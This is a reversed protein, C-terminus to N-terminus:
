WSATLYAEARADTEQVARIGRGRFPSLVARINKAVQRTRGSRVGEMADLAKSWTACAKEVQGLQAQADGLYGLTVAHTRTFASKKRTRASRRFQSIAGKVDGNDRLTCATEHALSAEGFFFVRGPETDGPKAAALDKEARLLALTAKHSEGGAALARAHVVELLAKERSSAETYRRGDISAAALDLAQRRHGLDVAQHAMARLVHGAMAPDDAEAALKVSAQFYYQAVPHESNDFAMWGSLYALESAATFMNRRVQDDAFRGHLCSAVDSTLYQVVATRAHGGGRKQDVQSFLRVMERVADVDARGITRGTPAFRGRGREAMQSWWPGTPLVLAAVSFVAMSLVRRREVDVDSRGLDTLAVLTDARWDRNDRSCYEPAAPGIEDPTVVRGLIRGFAECLIMPARGSPTVGAVWKSVHSRGVATFESAGVENAVRVFARAIRAHSAGTETIVAALRRNGDSSQTV